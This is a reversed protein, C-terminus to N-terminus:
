RRQKQLETRPCCSKGPDQLSRGRGPVGREGPSQGSMGLVCTVRAPVGGGRACGRRAGARAQGSWTGRRCEGAAPARRRRRRYTDQPGPTSALSGRLGTGETGAAGHHGEPARPTGAAAPRFGASDNPIAVTPYNRGHPPDDESQGPEPVSSRRRCASSKGRKPAFAWGAGRGKTYDPITCDMRPSDCPHHGSSQLPFWAFGDCPTESGPGTDRRNM